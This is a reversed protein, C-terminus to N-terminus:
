SPETHFRENDPTPHITGPVFCSIIVFKLLESKKMKVASVEIKLNEVRQLLDEYYIHFNMLNAVINSPLTMEETM